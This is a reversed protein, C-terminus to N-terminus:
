SSKEKEVQPGKKWQDVGWHNGQERGGPENKKYKKSATRHGATM